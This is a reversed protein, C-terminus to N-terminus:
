ELTPVCKFRRKLRTFQRSSNRNKLLSSKQHSLTMEFRDDDREFVPDAVIAITRPARARQSKRKRFEALSSASPANIVEHDFILPYSHTKETSDPVPLSAFAVIGLASQTVVILRKSGLKSAVPGLLIKSLSFAANSYTNDSRRIRERKQAITEGDINTDRSTLLEYLELAMANIQSAAPLEYSTMEQRTIAWLYSRENGLAYELLM